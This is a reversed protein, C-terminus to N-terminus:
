FSTRFKGLLGYLLLNESRVGTINIEGPSLTLQALLPLLASLSIVLLKHSVVL